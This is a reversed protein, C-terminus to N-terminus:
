FIQLIAQISTPLLSFVQLLYKEFRGYLRWVRVREM